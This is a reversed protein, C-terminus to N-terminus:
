SLLQIVVSVNREPNKLFYNVSYGSVCVIWLLFKVSLNSSCCAGVFIM